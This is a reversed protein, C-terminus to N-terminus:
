ESEGSLNAPNEAQNLVQVATAYVLVLAPISIQIAFGFLRWQVATLASSIFMIVWLIAFLIEWAPKLTPAADWLLIAPVILLTWDYVMVYPTIWLTLCIAGAFRIRSDQHQHFFRYYTFIGLLTSLLYLFQATTKLGPLLAFFFTQVGHANWIPFGDFTMLNASIMQAYTLYELSAEPLLIASLIVLSIGSVGMGLVSRWSKRIDLLWLLGLGIALQPKYLMLGGVLGAQFPKKREWFAFTTSIILVSLLSNQGFTIASWAPLWTLALLFHNGPTASKLLRIAGWLCALNFLMWLVAAVSYPLKSLPVFLLAYFPPNLYPNFNESEVQYIEQQIRHATDFDYLLASQGTDVIRGATYFAVFDTGILHGFQDTPTNANLQGLILSVFWAAWLAGGILWPYRRRAPTLISRFALLRLVWSQPNQAISKRKDM